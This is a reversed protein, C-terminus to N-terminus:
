GLHAQAQARQSICGGERVGGVGGVCVFAIVPVKNLLPAPQRKGNPGPQQRAAIQFELAALPTDHGNGVDDAVLEPKGTVLLDATPLACLGTGAVLAM